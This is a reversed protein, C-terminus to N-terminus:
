MRSFMLVASNALSLAQTNMNTSPCLLYWPATCDIILGTAIRQSRAARTQDGVARAFPKLRLSARRPCRVLSEWRWGAGGARGLVVGLEASRSRGEIGSVRQRKVRIAPLEKEQCHRDVAAPPIAPQTPASEEACGHEASMPGKWPETVARLATKRGNAPARGSPKGGPMRAAVGCRGSDPSFWVQEFLQFRKSGRLGDSPQPKFGPRGLWPPLCGHSM